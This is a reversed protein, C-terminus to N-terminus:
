NRIIHREIERSLQVIAARITVAKDLEMRLQLKTSEFRQELDQCEHRWREKECNAESKMRKMKLELQSCVDDNELERAKLAQLCHYIGKFKNLFAVGGLFTQIARPPRSPTKSVAISGDGSLDSGGEDEGNSHIGQERCYFQSEAISAQGNLVCYETYPDDFGPNSDEDANTKSGAGVQSPAAVDATVEDKINERLAGPESQVSSTLEMTVSLIPKESLLLQEKGPYLAFITRWVGILLM